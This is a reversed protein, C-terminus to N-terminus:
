YCSLVTSVNTVEPVFEEPRVPFFECRFLTQSAQKDDDSQKAREEEASAKQVNSTDVQTSTNGTDKQITGSIVERLDDDYETRYDTADEFYEEPIKDLDEDKDPFDSENFAGITIQGRIIMKVQEDIPIYGTTITESVGDNEEYVPKKVDYVSKFTVGKMKEYAM